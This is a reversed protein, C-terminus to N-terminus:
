CRRLYVLQLSLSSTFYITSEAPMGLPSLQCEVAGVRVRVGVDVRVDEGVEARPDDRPHGNPIRAHVECTCTYQVRYSITYVNVFNCSLRMGLTPTPTPRTSNWSLYAEQIPRSVSTVPLWGSRRRVNPATYFAMQVIFALTKYRLEFTRAHDHPSSLPAHVALRRAGNVSAAAQGLLLTIFNGGYVRCASSYKRRDVVNSQSTLLLLLM